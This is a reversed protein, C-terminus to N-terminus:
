PPNISQPTPNLNPPYGFGEVRVGCRLGWVGFQLVLYSEIFSVAGLSHERASRLSSEEPGYLCKDPLDIDTVRVSFTRTVLVFKVNLIQSASEELELTAM